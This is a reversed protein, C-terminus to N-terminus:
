PSRGVYFQYQQSAWVGTQFYVLWWGPQELEDLQVNYVVYPTFNIKASYLYAKPSVYYFSDDPRQFVLSIPAIFSTNPAALM